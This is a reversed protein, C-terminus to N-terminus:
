KFLFFYMEGVENKKKLEFNKYEHGEDLDNRITGSLVLTNALLIKDKLDEHPLYIFPKDTRTTFEIIIKDDEITQKVTADSPLFHNTYFKDHYFFKHVGRILISDGKSNITIFDKITPPNENEIYLKGMLELEATDRTTTYIRDRRLENFFLSINQFSSFDDIVVNEFFKPIPIILTDTFFTRAPLTYTKPNKIKIVTSDLLPFNVYCKDLSFIAESNGTNEQHLIIRMEWNDPNTKNVTFSEIKFNLKPRNYYTDFSVFGIHAIWGLILGILGGILTNRIEKKMSHKM